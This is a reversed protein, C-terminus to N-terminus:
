SRKVREAEEKKAKELAAKELAAKDTAEKEKAAKEKVAKEAKAREMEEKKVREAAAKDSSNTPAALLMRPSIFVSFLFIFVVGQVFLTKKFKPKKMTTVAKIKL